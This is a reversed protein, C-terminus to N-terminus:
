ELDECKEYVCPDLVEYDDADSWDYYSEPLNRAIELAENDTEAKVYAYGYKTCVILKTM